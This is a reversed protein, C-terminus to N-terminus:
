WPAGKPRPGSLAPSSVARHEDQHAQDQRDRAIQDEVAQQPHGQGGPEQRREPLPFGHIKELMKGASKGNGEGNRVEEVARDPRDQARGDANQRTEPRGCRDRKEQRHGELHIRDRRHDHQRAYEVAGHVAAGRSRDQQVDGPFGGRHHRAQVAVLHGPVSPGSRGQADRGEAGKDGARKGDQPYRDQGRGKGGKGQFETGGLVETEDEEAQHHRDIEGLFRDQLAQHHTEQTKKQAGDAEIRDGPASRNVKPTLRSVSPM